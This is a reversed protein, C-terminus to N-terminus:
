CRPERWGNWRCWAWGIHSKHYEEVLYRFHERRVVPRQDSGRTFWTRRGVERNLVRTLSSRAARCVQDEDRDDRWGLLAHFHSPDSALSLVEMAQPEQADLMTQGLLKQTRADFSASPERQDRRYRRARKPDPPLLGRTHHVYGQPRDPMWTGYVHPSYHVVPM